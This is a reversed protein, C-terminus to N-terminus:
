RPEFVELFLSVYDQCDYGLINSKNERAIKEIANISDIGLGGFTRWLVECVAHSGEELIHKKTFDFPKGSLELEKQKAYEVNAKVQLKLAERVATDIIENMAKNAMLEMFNKMERVEATKIKYDM